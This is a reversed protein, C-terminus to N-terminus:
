SMIMVDIFKAVSESTWSWDMFQFRDPYFYVALAKFLLLHVVYIELTRRGTFQLTAVFFGPLAKTINPLEAPRFRHLFFYIIVIGACLAIFQIGSLSPMPAAQMMTFAAFSAAAYFLMERKYKASIQEGKDQTYRCMAGFVTFLFGLTGYEFAMGTPVSLLLLLFFLGALAEGGRRGAGMWSDIFNRGIMLTVLISVPLLHEGAMMSGVLLIGAGALAKLSLDRSRAYGILFFWIPVCLRGLIRFWAEDPYFYAGIHDIVMLLIAITKLLDYSTLNVPLPKRSAKVSETHTLAEPGSQIKSDNM